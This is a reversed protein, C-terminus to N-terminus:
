ECLSHCRTTGFPGCDGIPSSVCGSGTCWEDGACSWNCDCTPRLNNTVIREDKVYKQIGITMFIAFAENKTFVELLKDILIKSAKSAEEESLSNYFNFTEASLSTLMELIFENQNKSFKGTSLHYALQVKWINLRDNVPMEKAIRMRSKSSSKLLDEYKQLLAVEEDKGIMLPEVFDGLEKYAFLGMAKNVIEQGTQESRRIKESDSNDFLDSSVKSIADLIFEQQDKTINPRKVIQLALNVKIFSAKQENSLKGFAKRREDKSLSAVRFYNEFAENGVAISQPM